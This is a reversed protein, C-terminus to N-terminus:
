LILKIGATFRYAPVYENIIPVGNADYNGSFTGYYPIDTGNQKLQSQILFNYALKGFIGLHHGLNIGLGIAGYWYPSAAIPSTGTYDQPKSNAAYDLALIGVGFELFPDIFSTAKFLHYSLYIDADWNILNVGTLDSANSNPSYNFSVGLGLHRGLIEIFGGYYINDGTRFADSIGSASLQSDSHLAGSVGFALQAFAGGSVLAVLAIVIFIKKNM